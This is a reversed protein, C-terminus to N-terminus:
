ASSVFFSSSAIPQKPKILSTLNEKTIKIGGKKRRPPRDSCMESGTSTETPRDTCDMNDSTRDIKLVTGEITTLEAPIVLSIKISLISSFLQFATM